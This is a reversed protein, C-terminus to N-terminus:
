LRAPRHWRRARGDFCWKGPVARYRIGTLFDGLSNTRGRTVIRRLEEYAKQVEIFSRSSGGTDPHHRLAARRYASKINQYATDSLLDNISLKLCALSKQSIRSRKHAKPKLVEPPVGARVAKAFVSETARFRTRTKKMAAWWHTGLENAMDFYDEFPKKGPARRYAFRLVEQANQKLVDLVLLSDTFWFNAYRAELGVLLGSWRELQAALDECCDHSCYKKRKDALFTGCALCAQPVAQKAKRKKKKTTLMGSM